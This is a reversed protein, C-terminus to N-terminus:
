RRVCSYNTLEIRTSGRGINMWDFDFRLRMSESLQSPTTWRDYLTHLITSPTRWVAKRSDTDWTMTIQSGRQLTGCKAPPLWLAGCGSYGCGFHVVIGPAIDLVTFDWQHICGPPGRIDIIGNVERPLVTYRNSIRVRCIGMSLQWWDIRADSVPIMFEDRGEMPSSLYNLCLYKVLSPVSIKQEVEHRRLYGFVAKKVKPHASKAKKLSM